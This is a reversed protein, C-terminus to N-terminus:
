PNTHVTLADFAGADRLAICGRIFSRVYKPQRVNRITAMGFTPVVSTDSIPLAKYRTNDVSYNKPRINLITYGFKGEVLAQAIEASRTSHAVEPELGRSKFLGLFYDRTYPLDLMIMPRSSLAALTTSNQANNSESIPVLAYPPAAFLPEFSQTDPLYSDYTFVLDVEGNKLYDSISIMDGEMLKISIGPFNETISKLIPPLFAPAATAYCAIRVLGAEDGGQSQLETEFQQAQNLFNRIVQLAERGASTPHIGKAPTRVFLAYDLSAELADIAATISSQSISVELAAKAISGLRGAAEVYRLQKLTFNM